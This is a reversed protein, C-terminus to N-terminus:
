KEPRRLLYTDMIWGHRERAEARARAIAPAADRLTGAILLEKDTGLYAGWHITMDNADIANFAGTGDLMVVINDAEPMPNERLRRGTTIHISGGIHNLAIRHRAALVQVSSIGPIVECDFAITGNAVILDIVRLTSDYLSPDGWVLVAGTGDEGLEDAILRELMAARQRHWADVGARYSAAAPDRAPDQAEVFRYTRGEIYRECIDQRIRVLDSKDEGKDMVFFVDVTNLAKIAQITVHEPNGAGIGIVLLKRMM